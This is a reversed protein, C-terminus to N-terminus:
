VVCGCERYHMGCATWSERHLWPILLLFYLVPEYTILKVAKRSHAILVTPLGILIIIERIPFAVLPGIWADPQLIVAALYASAFFIPM